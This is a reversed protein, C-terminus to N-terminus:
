PIARYPSFDDSSHFRIFKKTTKTQYIGDGYYNFAKPSPKGDPFYPHLSNSFYFKQGGKVMVCAGWGLCNGEEWGMASNLGGVPKQYVHISPEPFHFTIKLKVKDSKHIFRNPVKPDQDWYEPNPYGDKFGPLLENSFYVVKGDKLYRCLGFGNCRGGSWGDEESLESKPKPYVHTSSGDTNFLNGTSAVYGSGKSWGRSRSSTGAKGSHLTLPVQPEEGWGYVGFSAVLTIVLFSIQLRRGVM